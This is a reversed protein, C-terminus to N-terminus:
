MEVRAFKTVGHAFKNTVSCNGSVLIGTYMRNGTHKRAKKVWIVVMAANYRISQFNQFLITNIPYPPPM